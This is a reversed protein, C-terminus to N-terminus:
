LARGLLDKIESAIPIATLFIFGNSRSFLFKSFNLYLKSGSAISELIPVFYVKSLLAEVVTASNIKITMPPCRAIEFIGVITLFLVKMLDFAILLLILATLPGLWLGAADTACYSSSTLFKFRNPELLNVFAVRNLFKSFM